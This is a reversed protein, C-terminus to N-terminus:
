IMASVCPNAINEPSIRLFAAAPNDLILAQQALVVAGSSIYGAEIFEKKIGLRPFVGFWKHRPSSHWVNVLALPECSSNSKCTLERM